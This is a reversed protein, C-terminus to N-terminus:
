YVYLIDEETRIKSVLFDKKLEKILFNSLENKYNSPCLIIEIDELLFDVKQEDPFIITTGTIRWERENHYKFDETAGVISSLWMNSTRMDPKHVEITSNGQTFSFHMELEAYYRYFEGLHKAFSSPMSNDSYIVNMAGNKFAWEKKVALAFKGYKEMHHSLFHLPTETFCCMKIELDGFYTNKSADLRRKNPLLKFHQSLLIKKLTEYSRNEWESQTDSKKRGTFHFLLDSHTPNSM